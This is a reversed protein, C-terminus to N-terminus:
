NVGKKMIAKEMEDYSPISDLDSNQATERAKEMTQYFAKLKEKDLGDLSKLLDIQSPTAAPPTASKQFGLAKILDDPKELLEKKVESIIDEKKLPVPASDLKVKMADREKVLDDIKKNQDEVAKRLVELEKKLEESMDDDEEHKEKGECSENCKEITFTQELENVMAKHIDDSYLIKASSLAQTYTQGDKMYTAIHQRIIPNKLLALDDSKKLHTGNVVVEDICEQNMPVQCLAFSIAEIDRLIEIVKGGKDVKEKTYAFGKISMASLDGSEIKRRVAKHFRRDGYVDWKVRAGLALTGDKTMKNAFRIDMLKGVETDTHQLHIKPDHAMMMPIDKVLEEMPILQDEKDVVEVHGWQEVTFKGDDSKTIITEDPLTLTEM